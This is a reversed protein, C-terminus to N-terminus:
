QMSTTLAFEVGAQFMDDGYSWCGDGIRGVTLRVSRTPGVLVPSEIVACGGQVEAGNVKLTLIAGGGSDNQWALRVAIMGESPATVVYNREESLITDKVVEGVSIQRAETPAPPPEPATPVLPSPQSLQSGRESGADCAAVFVLALLPALRRM